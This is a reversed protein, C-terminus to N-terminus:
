RKWMERRLKVRQEGYKTALQEALETEGIDTVARVVSEWTVDGERGEGALLELTERFYYEAEKGKETEILHLQTTELGMKQGFEYWKKAIRALETGLLEVSPSAPSEAPSLFVFM